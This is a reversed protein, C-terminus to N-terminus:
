HGVTTLDQGSSRFLDSDVVDAVEQARAGTFREAFAAHLEPDQKGM